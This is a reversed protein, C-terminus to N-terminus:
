RSIVLDYNGAESHPPRTSTCSAGVWPEYDCSTQYDGFLTPVGLYMTGSGILQGGPNRINVRFWSFSLQTNCAGDSKAFFSFDHKEDNSTTTFTTNTEDKTCNSTGSGGGVISVKNGIGVKFIAHATITEDGVGGTGVVRSGSAFLMAIRAGRPNGAWANLTFRYVSGGLRFGAKSMKFASTRAPLGWVRILRLNTGTLNVNVIRNKAGGAISVTVGCYDATGVCRVTQNRAAGAPGVIALAGLLSGLAALALLRKSLKM